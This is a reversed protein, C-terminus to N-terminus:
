PTGQHYQHRRSCYFSTTLSIFPSFNVSFNIHCTELKSQDKILVKKIFVFHWIKKRHYHFLEPLRRTSGAACSTTSTPTCTWSAMTATGLPSVKKRRTSPPELSLSGSGGKERLLGGGEFTIETSSGVEVLFVLTGCSPKNDVILAFPNILRKPYSWRCRIWCWSQWSCILAWKHRCGNRNGRRLDWVHHRLIARLEIKGITVLSFSSAQSCARLSAPMRPSYLSMGAPRLFPKRQPKSFKERVQVDM